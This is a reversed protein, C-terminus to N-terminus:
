SRKLLRTLLRPNSNPNSDPYLSLTLTPTLTLKLTLSTWHLYRVRGRSRVVELGLVLRRVRVRDRVEVYVRQADVVKKTTYKKQM